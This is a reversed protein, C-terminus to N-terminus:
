RKAPPPQNLATEMDVVRGAEIDAMGQRFSEPIDGDELCHVFEIVQARQDTPLAEIERIIEKVSM